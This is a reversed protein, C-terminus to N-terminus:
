AGQEVFVPGLSHNYAIGFTPVLPDVLKVGIFKPLDAPRFSSAESFFVTERERELNQAMAETRARKMELKITCSTV